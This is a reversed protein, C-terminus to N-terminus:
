CFCLQLWNEFHQTELTDQLFAWGCIQRPHLVFSPGKTVFTSGNYMAYMVSYHIGHIIANYMAYMVWYYIGHVPGKYPSNVPWPWLPSTSTRWYYPIKINARSNEQVFQQVFLCSALLKVHGPVWTICTPHTWVCGCKKPLVMINKDFVTFFLRLFKFM